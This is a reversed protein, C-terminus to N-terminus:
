DNEKAHDMLDKLANWDINRRSAQLNEETIAIYIEKRYVAVDKPAEIGLRISDGEISLIKIEISDGIM